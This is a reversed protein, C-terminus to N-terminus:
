SYFCLIKLIKPTINIFNGERIKGMIQKLIAAWNSFLCRDNFNQNQFFFM